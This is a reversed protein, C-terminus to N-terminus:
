LRLPRLYSFHFSGRDEFSKLPMRGIEGSVHGFRKLQKEM